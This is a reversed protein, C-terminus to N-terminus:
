HVIKYTENTYLIMGMSCGKFSYCDHSIFCGHTFSVALPQGLPRKKMAFDHTKEYVNCLFLFSRLIM